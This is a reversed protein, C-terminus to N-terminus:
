LMISTINFEKRKKLINKRTKRSKHFRFVLVEMIFTLISLFLMLALIYFPVSMTELDIVKLESRLLKFGGDRNKKILSLYLKRDIKDLEYRLFGTEIFQKIVKNFKEIYPSTKPVIMSAYYNSYIEPVIWTNSGLSFNQIDIMYAKPLLLASKKLEKIEKTLRDMNWKEVSKFRDKLKSNNLDDISIDQIHANITLDTGFVQDITNIESLHDFNTNLSKILKAQWISTTTINCFLFMAIVFRRSDNKTIKHWSSGFLFATISLIARTYEDFTQLENIKLIKCFLWHLTPTGFIMIVNVAMLFYNFKTLFVFGFRSKNLYGKPVIFNLSHQFIPTLFQLNKIQHDLIRFSNGCLDILDNEIYYFSGLVTGNELVMGYEHVNKAEVFLYIPTFNMSKSIIDVLSGHIGGFSEIRGSKEKNPVVFLDDKMMMIKMRKGMLNNELNDFHQNMIQIFEAINSNRTLNTCSLSSITLTQYPNALCVELINDKKHNNM